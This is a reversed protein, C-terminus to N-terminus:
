SADHYTGTLQLVRAQRCPQVHMANGASMAQCTEDCTRYALTPGAQSCAATSVHCVARPARPARQRHDSSQETKAQRMAATHETIHGRAVNDRQRPACVCIPPPARQAPPRAIPRVRMDRRDRAHAGEVRARAGHRGTAPAFRRRKGRAKTCWSGAPLDERHSPGRGGKHRGAGQRAGGVGWASLRPRM